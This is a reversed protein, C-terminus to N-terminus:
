EVQSEDARQSLADVMEVVPDPVGLDRLQQLTCSTDEVADHLLGAMQQYESAGNRKAIAATARVHEVYPTGSKDVQERHVAAALKEVSSLTDVPGTLYDYAEAWIGLLEALRAEVKALPVFHDVTEAYYSRQKVVRPHTHLRQVNSYRDALKLKLVAAPAARLRALYAKRVAEKSQNPLVDPMTVHGVLEATRRGFRAAVDSLTGDTDEVVDHLLGAVLLDTDTVGLEVAMIEVVELLHRSYPEGAPRTQGAHCTEAYRWAEGLLGVAAASQTAAVVDTSESWTSWRGFTKV